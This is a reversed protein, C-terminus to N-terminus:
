EEQGYGTLAIILTEEPASKRLQRCVEYGDMGPLGIDLFVVRPNERAAVSLATPGDHALFVEHGSQRLLTSFSEAADVNDDVVLVRLSRDSRTPIDSAATRRKPLPEGLICAMRVTFTSGEEGSMAQVTGGHLEVLSRALSLGIG